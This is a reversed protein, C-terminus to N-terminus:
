SKKSAPCLLPIGMTLCWICGMGAWSSYRILQWPWVSYLIGKLRVWQDFQKRMIHTNEMQSDLGVLCSWRVFFTELMITKHFRDRWCLLVKGGAGNVANRTKSYNATLVVRYDKYLVIEEPQGNRVDRMTLLKAVPRRNSFLAEAALCNVELWGFVVSHKGGLSM